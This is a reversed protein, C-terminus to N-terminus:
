ALPKLDGLVTPILEAVTPHIHVARQIVTYSQKAYMIDILCHIVEDGNIGLIAAGLIEESDADVIIKIFGQTEGRERARGVRTMMRKGVLARRGSERVQQETMGVRGLPPDIFLGYCLLRQTVNRPDNRLLNATVIEFDNYSTHTFAGRGNVEGIAWVGPVPTSLQDDVKIFGRQDTEIDTNHLGLSDTNPRRGVALLVHSGVVEKPHEDCNLGVAVGNQRREVRICEANLRVNVGDSEVIEKVTASIDEDDRAILRNGMEVVTVDSGFRRYMQAFELGIYSGGIIVLHEPLFDVDMMSTNTFFDVDCLGPMDPVVARAGANVFIQDGHLLEDNVQVSYNDAFQAHGRYITLHRMGELWNTLGQNSAEVVEDKRKKVRQMDVEIAGGIVVGFDLARRSVYAARASAVLTKTPICGTNVCTGGFLQREVIATKMGAQTLEGALPPGAQGAGIIIADYHTTM